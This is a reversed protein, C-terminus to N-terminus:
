QLAAAHYADLAYAPVRDGYDTAHGTVSEALQDFEASNWNREHIPKRQEGRFYAQTGLAMAAFWGIVLLSLVIAM